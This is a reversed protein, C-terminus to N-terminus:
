PLVRGGFLHFVLNGGSIQFTGLHNFLGECDHGTGRLWFHREETPATTDVLAWMQPTGRQTQIDLIEFGVPLRLVIEDDIPIEYKYITKM